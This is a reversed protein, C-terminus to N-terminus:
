NLEVYKKFNNLIAQWGDRQKEESNTTELDFTESLRIGDPTPSLEVRVKRDDSMKYEILENPIVTTYTGEFNFSNVGDKSSMVTKFKGGERLDNEAHPAEWDDSAHCWKTIHEPENLYQWVKEVPANIIADVTISKNSM